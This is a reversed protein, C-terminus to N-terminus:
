VSAAWLDSLAFMEAAIELERGRDGFKDVLVARDASLTETDFGPVWFTTFGPVQLPSRDGVMFVLPNYMCILAAVEGDVLLRAWFEDSFEDWDTWANLERLLEYLAHVSLDLPGESQSVRLRQLTETLDIM